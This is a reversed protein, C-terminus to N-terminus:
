VAGTSLRTLLQAYMTIAENAQLRFAHAASHTGSSGRCAASCRASFCASNPISNAVKRAATIAIGHWTMRLPLRTISRSSDHFAHSPINRRNTSRNCPQQNHQLLSRSFDPDPHGSGHPGELWSLPHPMALPTLPPAVPTSIGPLYFTYISIPSA